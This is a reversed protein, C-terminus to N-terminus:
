FRILKVAFIILEIATFALTCSIYGWKAVRPSLKRACFVVWVATVAFAAIYVLIRVAGADSGRDALEKAFPTYVINALPALILPLVRFSWAKRRARGFMYAAVGMIIVIAWSELVMRNM